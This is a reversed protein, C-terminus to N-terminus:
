YYRYQEIELLRQVQGVQQVAEGDDDAGDGHGVERQGDVRDPGVYQDQPALENDAPSNEAKLNIGHVAVGLDLAPVQDAVRLQAEPEDVQNQPAHDIEQAIKEPPLRAHVLDFPEFRQPPNQM